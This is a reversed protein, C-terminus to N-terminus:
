PGERRVGFSTFNEAMYADVVTDINNIRDWEIFHEFSVTGDADRDMSNLTKEVVDAVMDQRRAVYGHKERGRVMHKRLFKELMKPSVRGSGCEDISRFIAKSSIKRSSHANLVSAVMRPLTIEPEYDLDREPEEMSLEDPWLRSFKDM